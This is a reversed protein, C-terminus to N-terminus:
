RSIEETIIYNKIEAFKKEGIGEVKTIESISEFSGNIKRYDVIRQATVEGIGPILMLTDVDATNINIAPISLLEGDSYLSPINISTDAIVVADLDTNEIDARPTIGGASYIVDCIRAGKAVAYKGPNEVEGTIEVSFTEKPINQGDYVIPVKFYDKHIRMGVATMVTIALILIATKELKEFLM